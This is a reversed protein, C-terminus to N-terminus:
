LENTRSSNQLSTYIFCQPDNLWVMDLKAAYHMHAVAYVVLVHMINHSNLFYDFRGPFFKEPIRMAGIIGGFCAVADQLWIHIIADPHGSAKNLSRMVALILRILVPIVFCLRRDWVSGSGGAMQAKYLGWLSTLCYVVVIMTGTNSPFCYTATIVCTLAGFSQTIWIGLMDLQLLRRYTYYGNQHNMFTHYIVSGVWPSLIAALHTYPLIPIKLENWPIISYAFIVIYLVPLGHTLINVTENHFSFLSGLCSRISSLPRYGEHIHPNFQLHPPVETLKLLRRRPPNVVDGNNATSSVHDAEYHTDTACGNSSSTRVSDTKPVDM